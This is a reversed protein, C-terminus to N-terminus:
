FKKVVPGLTINQRYGGMGFTYTVKDVYYKGNRESPERSNLYAIDGHRVFPEGFTTFSGRYGDYKLKEMEREAAEKLSKEDLEYFNLTRQEGDDDGLEIELKKGDKKNSIAKVKIKVDEKRKFELNDSIINHQFKFVVTRSYEPDYPMGVNLVGNRFFSNLGYDSKITDLVKAASANDIVFQSGLAANLVRHKYRAYHKKMLAEIDANQLTDTIKSQKLKWMEDECEIEVPVGPKVNTIYGTFISHYKGDYGTKINVYSGNVLRDRLRNKELKLNLPLKIVATDTLLEWGSQVEVEHVFDLEYPGLTIKCNLNFMIEFNYAYREPM